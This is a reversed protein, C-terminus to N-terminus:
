KKNPSKKNEPVSIATEVVYGNEFRIAITGLYIDTPEDNITCTFYRIHVVDRTNKSIVACALLHNLRDLVVERKRGIVDDKIFREYYNKLPLM